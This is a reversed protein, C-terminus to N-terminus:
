RLASTFLAIGATALLTGLFDFMKLTEMNFPSRTRDDKPVTWFAIASFAAYIVTIVWFAARWSAIQFSIGAIIM